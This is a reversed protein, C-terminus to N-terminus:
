SAEVEVQEIKDLEKCSWPSNGELSRQGHFQSCQLATGNKGVPSRTVWPNFGHRRCKDEANAPLNKVVSGGPFGGM